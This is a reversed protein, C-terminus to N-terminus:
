VSSIKCIQKRIKWSVLLNDATQFVIQQFLETAGFHIKNLHQINECTSYRYGFTGLNNQWQYQDHELASAFSLLYILFYHFYL